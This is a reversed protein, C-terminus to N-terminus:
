EIILKQTQKNQNMIINIFYTGKALNSVDISNVGISLTQSKLQKGFLDVIIIQGSSVQQNIKISVNNRAPNPYMIFQDDELNIDTNLSRSGACVVVVGNITRSKSCGSANTYTYTLSGSGATASTNAIGTSSGVTLAGTSSWLGGSPIGIVGFTRNACFAGTPAGRQPNSSAVAYQIAPVNPLANVTVFHTSTANCGLENVFSYKITATGASTGTVLGTNNVTARGSISTWNGGIFSDSLQITNGICVNNSGTIPPMTGLVTLHLTASSDCGSALTQHVTYNGTTTLTLGAWHYPIASSCITVNSNVVIPTCPSFVKRIRNNGDLIFMESAANVAVSTPYYFKTQLAYNGDGNFGGHISPLSTTIDGVVTTIIGTSPNYKRILNNGWDCVYLEGYIGWCMGYLNGFYANTALGNDGGFIQGNDWYHGVITSIYGGQIKRIRRYDTVYVNGVADALLGSIVGGFYTSTALVPVDNSFGSTLQGAFATVIHTVADIKRIRYLDVFYLNNYGDFTLSGLVSFKCNIALGGDGGYGINSTNGNLTGDGAYTTIIGTIADVKRIRNNSNDTFYMNNAADFAVSVPHFIQASTALIGDGNYGAVGTGAVTTIIKTTKDIKRIRHNEYDAIYLNGNNDLTIGGGFSGFPINFRAAKASINDGNYGAIGTTDVYTSVIQSKVSKGFLFLFIM